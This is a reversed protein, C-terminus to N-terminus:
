GSHASASPTPTPKPTTPHSGSTSSAPACQVRAAPIYHTSIPEKVDEQGAKSLVRTVLIDFGPVGDQPVCNANTDTESTFPKTNERPGSVAKVSDYQRKGWITVTVTTDTAKATIFVGNSTNNRFKMDLQGWAVTAELGPTYRSIWITHAGREVSELGAYFAALYTATTATSVGGGMDMVLKGGEGVVPGQTYGNAKTREGVTDNMSFVSGPTLLTGNVKKAAQGINQKRYAAYPFKQTYSGMKETIGLNNAAETTLKPALPGLPVDVSRESGSKSVAGEVLSGLAADDTVGSGNQSPTVVPAGNVIKWSADVAPTDVAHLAPALLQHLKAGDVTAKLQGDRVEYSLSQALDSPAVPVSLTGARLVVPASLAATATSAAFEKAQDASVSPPKEIVPLEITRDGSQLYSTALLEVAAQKDLQTGVVPTTAVPTTGSYTIEPEVPTQDFRSALMDVQAALKDPDTTLKV